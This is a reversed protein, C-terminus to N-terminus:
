RRSHPSVSGSIRFIFISLTYIGCLTRRSINGTRRFSSPCQLRLYIDCDLSVRFSNICKEWDKVEQIEDFFLYAKGNIKAARATIESHLASATLLHSYSMDEFNITIFQEPKIGSELLEKRNLELMVSKGSRRIGTMVKVLDTGMFPRIRKMYMERKIMLVNERGM